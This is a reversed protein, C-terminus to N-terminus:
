GSFEECFVSKLQNREDAEVMCFVAPCGAELGWKLGMLRAANVSMFDWVEQWPRDLTKAARRIGEIPSLASGAFNTQGPMRVIQDEGVEVEVQGITYRGPPAGAASMADTTYYIRELPQAKHLLRFFMPAVHIGDPILGITLGNTDLVRWVINDHRDLQQPMGNGLHTFGTAGAAVAAALEDASANSHGLSVKFGAEVASRIAEASGTREPAVTLLVSDDGTVAKLEAICDHSPDCMVAPNHAGKFGPEASLFPGEIHWGAIARRLVPDSDRMLKFHRLRALLAQWEDTILTLMWRSCGDRRLGDSATRLQGPTVDDRQFDVGAYGNIQVDILGPAIWPGDPCSEIEQVSVIVGDKSMIRVPKGTRYHRAEITNATTDM